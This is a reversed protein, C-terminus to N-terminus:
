GCDRRQRHLHGAMIPSEHGKFCAVNLPTVGTNTATETDAGEGM